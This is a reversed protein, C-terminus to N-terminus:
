QLEDESGASHGGRIRRSQNKVGKSLHESSVPCARDTMWNRFATVSEKDTKSLPVLIKCEELLDDTSLERDEDYARYLGAEVVAQIEAGVFGDSAQALAELDFQEPDRKCKRIHIAFIAEREKPMPLDVAFIEDWRGRRFLAGDLNDITNCTAVKYIPAKTEQMWTLMTSIVRSTVGSDTKGSSQSGAFGKEFEDFLLVCPAVTEALKLANRVTSESQGVIGKFVAGIDFKYLPLELAASIAKGALSKGGGAHGTLLIGKPPNLGFEKAADVNDYYKRRKAAHAKLVDFGGLTDMTENHAIYELVGSQKVARKKEDRILELDIGRTEVISRSIANEAKIESMGTANEAARDLEDQTINKPHGNDDKMLDRYKGVIESFVRKIDQKSPLEFDIFTILEELEEPLEISAGICIIHSGATRIAYATDIFQQRSGPSQILEKIHYMIYVHDAAPEGSSSTGAIYQLSDMFDMAVREELPNQSNYEYLGQTIKWVFVKLQDALGSRRLDDIIYRTAREQEKTQLYLVPYGADLLNSIRNPM